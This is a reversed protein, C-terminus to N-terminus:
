NVIVCMDDYNLLLIFDDFLNNVSNMSNIITFNKEISTETM